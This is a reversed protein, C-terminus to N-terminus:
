VEEFINQYTNLNCIEKTKIRLGKKSNKVCKVLMTKVFSDKKTILIVIEKVNINFKSALLLIDEIRSSRHVMYFTGNNKLYKSVIDFIEELNILHEHKSINVQTLDNKLNVEELKFYPPNCTIVDFYNKDFYREVNKIDDNILNIQNNLKNCTLSNVGMDCLEEQIEMASIKNNFKTSLILPVPILGSCLDLIKENDTRVKVYEALLVSDISFKFGTEPQYIYRNKYDYLDNKVSIM